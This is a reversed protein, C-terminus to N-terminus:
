GGQSNTTDGYRYSLTFCVFFALTISEFGDIMAIFVEDFFMKSTLFFFGIFDISISGTIKLICPM